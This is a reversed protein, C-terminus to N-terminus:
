PSDAFEAANALRKRLAHSDLLHEIDEGAEVRITFLWGDGFPDRNVLSPDAFVAPNIEVLTGNVPARVRHTRREARLPFVPQGTQLAAGVEPPDAGEIRGLTAQLRDTVGVRAIDGELRLWEGHDSYRIDDAIQM